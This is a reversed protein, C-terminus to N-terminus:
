PIRIHVELITGTDIGFGMNTDKDSNDAKHKKSYVEFVREM